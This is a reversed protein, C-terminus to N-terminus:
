NKNEELLDEVAALIVRNSARIKYNPAVFNYTAIGKENFLYVAPVPLLHHDQGSAEELNVGFTKMTTRMALGVKFALGFAKIAEADSDSLLTYGLTHKDQTKILEEPRDPTIAIIQVGKEKLPAELKRLEALHLNCYPCWGGRYFIVLTPQSNVLKHLKVPKGDSDHLTLKPIKQGILLPAVDDASKAIGKDDAYSSPTLLTMLTALLLTLLAVLTSPRATFLTPLRSLHM